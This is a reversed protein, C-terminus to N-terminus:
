PWSNTAESKQGVRSVQLNYTNAVPGSKLPGIPGPGLGGVLLPGEVLDNM